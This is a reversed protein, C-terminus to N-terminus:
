RRRVPGKDIRRIETSNCNPCRTPRGTGYPVKWKYGCKMCQFTRIGIIKYDGGEIKITKANIIADAIKKRASVLLRHFTPQSIKMKKAAVEQDMGKLDKLRLAEFEDLTLNVEKLRTLPIGAPKFYTENPLSWINRCKKPRVM